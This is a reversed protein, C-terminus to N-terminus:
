SNSSGDVIFYVVPILYRILLASSLIGDIINNELVELEFRLM